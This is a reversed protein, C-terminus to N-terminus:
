DIFVTKDNVQLNNTIKIETKDNPTITTEIIDYQKIAGWSENYAHPSRTKLFKGDWEWILKYKGQYGETEFNFVNTTKLLATRGIYDKNVLNYKTLYEPYVDILNKFMTPDVEELHTLFLPVSKKQYETIEGGMLAYPRFDVISKITKINWDSKRIFDSGTLLFGGKALFPANENSDAHAYPLFVYDGVFCLKDKPYSLKGTVDKYQERKNRVWEGITKSRKTPGTEGTKYGYPCRGGLIKNCVCSNSKFLDCNTSNGCLIINLKAHDTAKNKFFISPERPDFIGYSIPIKPLTSETEM